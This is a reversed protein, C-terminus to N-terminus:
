TWLPELEKDMAAEVLESSFFQEDTDVFECLYEQRFQWDGITRREEELWAPDIRPCEHATIKTRAWGEGQDWAEYFWGRRGYPTTLAILKGQTTALMPRVATFLSDEIRSAEDLIIAKPASYGRITSETGPLAINRSGNELELRLASEHTIKPADPVTRYFDLVKRFLEVSQRQAPAIILYLGPDYIAGGTALAGCTTSKGSQRSCLVLHRSEESVLLTEQWVDPAMGADRMVQTPDLARSFDRALRALSQM